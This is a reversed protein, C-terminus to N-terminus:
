SLTKEDLLLCVFLYVFVQPSAPKLVSQVSPQRGYSKTESTAAAAASARLTKAQEGTYIFMYQRNEPTLSAFGM